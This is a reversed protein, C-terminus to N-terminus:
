PPPWIRIAAVPRVGGDSINENMKLPNCYVAAIASSGNSMPGAAKPHRAKGFHDLKPVKKGRL